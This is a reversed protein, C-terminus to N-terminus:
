AVRKSEGEITRTDDAQDHKAETPWLKSVTAARAATRTQPKPKLRGKMWSRLDAPQEGIAERLQELVSEDGHQKILHGLYSGATKPGVGQKALMDRGLAWLEDKTLRAADAATIGNPIVSPSPSPCTKHMAQLTVSANSPANSPADGQLNKWRVAAAKVAKAVAKTSRSTADALEEDIRKHHWLGNVIQFKPAIVKRLAPWEEAPCRAIQSLVVDNDPPPGSRWYDMMLLLYAGHQCHSFRTTDALYDGIFLPMWVDPKSM